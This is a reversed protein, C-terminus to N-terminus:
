FPLEGIDKESFWKSSEDSQGNRKVEQIPRNKYKGEIIKQLNNPNIIWDFDFWNGNRQGNRNTLYDSSSIEEWLKTWGGFEEVVPNIKRILQKRKETMDGRIRSMFEGCDANFTEKIYIYDINSQNNSKSISKSNSKSMSCITTFEDVVRKSTTETDNVQRQSTTYSENVVEKRSTDDDNDKRAEKMQAEAMVRQEKRKKRRYERDYERKKDYVDLNQTAGWDPITLVGNVNELMGLEIFTEIGKNAIQKDINLVASLTDATHPKSDTLMFIGGNNKRGALCMLKIWFHIIEGGNEMNAIIRITDDEYFETSFKIWKMSGM